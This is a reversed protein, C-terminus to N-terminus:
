RPTAAGAAWDRVLTVSASPEAGVSLVALFHLGDSTVDYSLIAARPIEFHPRPPAAEFVPATKVEVSTLTRGSVVYLIEKGDRRWRPISGGGASIRRKETPTPFSRV